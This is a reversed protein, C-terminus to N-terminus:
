TSQLFEGLRERDVRLGDQRRLWGFRQFRGMFHSVRWRTTGIARALESNTLNFPLRVLGSVKRDPTFRLLLRALRREAPEKAFDGLAEEYRDLRLALNKLVRIAFHRDGTLRDLLEKKRFAAVWAPSLIRAAQGRRLPALFCKEGFFDGPALHDVIEGRSGSLQVYGSRLLYMRGPPHDLDFLTAGAPLRLSSVSSRQAHKKTNGRRGRTAFRAM